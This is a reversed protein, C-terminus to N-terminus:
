KQKRWKHFLEIRNRERHLKELLAGYSPGSYKEKGIIEELEHQAQLAREVDIEHIHEASDALIILKNDSFEVFGGSIALPLVSSDFKKIILEGSKLSSVYPIHNKLITIEGDPTPLSVSVVEGEFLLGEPKVIKFNFVKEDM